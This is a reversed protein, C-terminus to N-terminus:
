KFYKGFRRSLIKVREDVSIEGTSEALHFDQILIQRTIEEKAKSSKQVFRM